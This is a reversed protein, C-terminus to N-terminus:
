VAKKGLIKAVELIHAPSTGCCGGVLTAGAEICKRVGAAFDGPTMDFVTQKNIVKPIGANPETIVPLTTVEKMSAAIQAMEVPTVGGCNAGIAFAGAEQL